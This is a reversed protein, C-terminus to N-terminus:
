VHSRSQLDTARRRRRHAAHVEAHAGMQARGSRARRPRQLWCPCRVDRPRACRPLRRALHRRRRQPPRCDASLAAVRRAPNEARRPHIEAPATAAANVPRSRRAPSRPQTSGTIPPDVYRYDPLTTDPAVLVIDTDSFTDLTEATPPPPTVKADEKLPVFVIPDPLANAIYTGFGHALMYGAALTIATATIAGAFRTSHPAHERMAGYM